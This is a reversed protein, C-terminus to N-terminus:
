GGDRAMVLAELAAGLLGVRPELVLYVPFTAMLESMRGKRRFADLFSGDEIRARIKPAVGGAVYLGGRPLSRLALNGAEAGYAAVFIELARACAADTGAMGHRSIVAAADGTVLEHEVEPTTPTGQAVLFAYIRALGPGSVVREVSVRGGHGAELHRQLARQEEGQPAFDCHGAETPVVSHRQGDWVLLAQGLGTGAGLVAKTGRPDGAGAQLTALSEPGLALVGLAAAAFDNILRVRTLGTSSALEAERIVWPLNPTVCAGDSVAGPVGFCAANMGAAGEGLFEAVIPALGSHAPSDFRRERLVRVGGGHPEVLALLTKTGGVDGALVPM